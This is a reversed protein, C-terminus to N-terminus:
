SAHAQGTHSSWSHRDGGAEWSSNGKIFSFLTTHTSPAPPASTGLKALHEPWERHVWERVAAGLAPCPEWPHTTGPSPRAWCMGALRAQLSSQPILLGPSARGRESGSPAPHRSSSPAPIAAVMHGWPGLTWTAGVYGTDEALSPAAQSRPPLLCRRSGGETGQGRPQPSPWGRPHPHAAHGKDEPDLTSPGGGLSPATEFTCGLISCIAATKPGAELQVATSGVASTEARRDGTEQVALPGAGVPFCGEGPAPHPHPARPAGDQAPGPRSWTRQSSDTPTPNLHPM